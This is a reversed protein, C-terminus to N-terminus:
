CIRHRSLYCVPPFKYRVCSRDDTDSQESPNTHSITRRLLLGHPRVGFWFILYRLHFAVPECGVGFAINSRQPPDDRVIENAATKIATQEVFPVDNWFAGPGAPKSPRSRTHCIHPDKTICADEHADDVSAAPRLGLLNAHSQNTLFPRLAPLYNGRLQGLSLCAEANTGWKTGRQLCRPSARPGSDWAARAIRSGVHLLAPRKKNKAQAEGAAFFVEGVLRGVGRELRRRM